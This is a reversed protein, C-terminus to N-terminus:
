LPGDQRLLRAAFGDFFDFGAAAIMMWFALTLDGCSLAAVAGVSGCLLNSLTLLNPITFLRVQM